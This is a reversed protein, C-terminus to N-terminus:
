WEEVEDVGWASALAQESVWVVENITGNDMLYDTGNITAVVFAHGTPKYADRTITCHMRKCPINLDKLVAMKLDAQDACKGKEAVASEGAFQVPYQKEGQAQWNCWGNIDALLEVSVAKGQWKQMMSHKDAIGLTTCGILGVIAMTLILKKM